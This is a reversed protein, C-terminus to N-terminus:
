TSVQGKINLARLVPAYWVNGDPLNDVVIIPELSTWVCFFGIGQAQFSPSQM